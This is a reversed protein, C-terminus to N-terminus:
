GCREMMAMKLSCPLFIMREMGKSGAQEQVMSLWSCGGWAVLAQGAPCPCCDGWPFSPLVLYARGHWVREWRATWLM